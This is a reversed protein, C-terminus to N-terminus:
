TLLVKCRDGAKILASTNEPTIHDAFIIRFHYSYSETYSFLTGPAFAIRQSDCYRYFDSMAVKEPLRGWISYGGQPRHFYSDEPFYTRLLNLLELSQKELQRRFTRLHREYLNESLLKIMLEQYFPSVSRGLSFKMREAHEFFRGPNLWGLRIGPALTKSFSSYTMVWGNNDFSGVTSPRESGFHLDGYIDNEIIPIHNIEAISLLDKKSEDSMLIGTPNHFNPTVIVARINNKSIIDKLYNIDFGNMYHVPIEVAKLKLNSIVELVSFVCPSEVAIVEGPQTVSALAIYLAQLAGDTIILEEANMRCGYKATRSAIQSKLLVSGSAPYYRLLSVGKERIVEQMKRLILKQPILLDAPSAANFSTQEFRRGTKSTLEVKRDFESNRVTPPFESLNGPIHDDTKFNVFFGSRPRNEVLGKMVLYDYGSQVTTTSLKYEEKIQRVSPLRDGSSFIRKKIQEEIVSTFIEYKFKQM